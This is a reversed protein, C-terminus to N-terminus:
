AAAEEAEPAPEEEKVKLSEIQRRCSLRAIASAFAFFFFAFLITLVRKPRQIRVIDSATVLGERGCHARRLLPVLSERRELVAIAPARGGRTGVPHRGRPFVVKEGRM